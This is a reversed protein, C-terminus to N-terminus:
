FTVKFKESSYALVINNIRLIADTIQTNKSGIFRHLYHSITRSLKNHNFPSKLKM